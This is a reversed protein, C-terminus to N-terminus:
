SPNAAAQRLAVDLGEGRMRLDIYLLASACVTFPTVLTTAILQGVATIALASTSLTSDGNLFGVGGVVAFPITIIESVVGAVIAVLVLVGFTRWWRHSTIRRSRKLVGGVTGGEVVAVVTAFRWAVYLYIAFPIGIITIALGGWALAGLVAAGLVVGFRPRVERWAADLPVRRGLVGERVVVAALAAVVLNGIATLVFGVVLIVLSRFVDTSTADASRQLLVQLGFNTFVTIIAVAGSALLLSPARRVATIAGDLIEGVGLPRLPVIGPKM